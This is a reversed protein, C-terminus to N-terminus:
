LGFASWTDYLFAPSDLAVYARAAKNQGHGSQMFLVWEPVGAEIATSLGGKRASIGSFSDTPVGIQLLAGSVADSIHRRSCPKHTIFTQRGQRLTLTFLPPCIDCRNRDAVPRHCSPHKTLGFRQQYQKIWDVVDFAPNIAKGLRPFLGKRLTDNKRKSIRIAATGAYARSGRANDFDFLIDCAQLSAIESVRACCLTALVTALIGRQTVFAARRLDPISLMKWILEKRIPFKLSRPRGAINNIAKSWASYEGRMALPATVELARHRQSIAGWAAQVHGPGCGLTLLQWTIAMLTRKPMPVLQDVCEHAIALTLVARWHLWQQSRTSQQLAMPLVHQQFASAMDSITQSSRPPARRTGLKSLFAAAARPGDELASRISLNDLLRQRRPGTFMHSKRLIEPNHITPVMSRSWVIQEAVARELNRIVAARIARAQESVPAEAAQRPPM